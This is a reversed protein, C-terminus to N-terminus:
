DHQSPTHPARISKGFGILLCGLLLIVFGPADGEAAPEEFDLSKDGHLAALEALKLGKEQMTTELAIAAVSDSVLGTERAAALIARRFDDQPNLFATRELGWQEAGRQWDINDTPVKEAGELPAYVLAGEGARYPVPVTGMLYWGDVPRDGFAVQGPYEQRLIARKKDDLNVFSSKQRSRGRRQIKAKAPATNTIVFEVSGKGEALDASLTKFREYAM